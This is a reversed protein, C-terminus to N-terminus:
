NKLRGIFYKVLERAPDRQGEHQNSFSRSGDMGCLGKIAAAGGPHRSIWQTLDYVDGNIITWCSSATNRQAVEEKTFEKITSTATATPTPTPSSTPTPTPTPTPSSTLSPKPTAKIVVGSNWVRKSGKKVCTYERGKYVAKIGLKSCTAGAKPTVAFASSTPILLTFGILLVLAKRM